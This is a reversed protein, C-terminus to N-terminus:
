PETEMKRLLTRRVTEMPTLVPLTRGPYVFSVGQQDPLEPYAVASVVSLVWADSDQYYAWEQEENNALNLVSEIYEQDSVAAEDALSVTSIELTLALFTMLCRKM